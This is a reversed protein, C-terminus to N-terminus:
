PQRTQEHVSALEHRSLLPKREFLVKMGGRIVERTGEDLPVAAWAEDTLGYEVELGDEYHVRLSTSAGYPETRLRAVTGFAGAWSPDRLYSDSNPSLIVLDVDSQPTATGRAWSGVLGVAVIDNRGSAWRVLDSLFTSVRDSTMERVNETSM